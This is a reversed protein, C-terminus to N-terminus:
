RGRATAAIRDLLDSALLNLAHVRDDRSLIEKADQVYPGPKLDASCNELLTQMGRVTTELHFQLGFVRGGYEFAQQACADSEATRAAGPPLTVTDGHWHFATFEGPLVSFVPSEKGDPTLRVPFWGIERHENRRVTGGLAEAVLQAGLCIGLVTRGAAITEAIFRKEGALWSHRDEDGAGMPGGM